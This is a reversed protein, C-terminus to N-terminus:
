LIDFDFRAIWPFNNQKPLIYVYMPRFNLNPEYLIGKMLERTQMEYKM